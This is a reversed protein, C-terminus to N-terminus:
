YLSSSTESYYRNSGGTVGSQNNGVSNNTMDTNANSGSDAATNAMATQSNTTVSNALIGNDFGGLGNGFMSSLLNSNAQNAALSNAALSNLGIQNFLNNQQSSASPAFGTMIVGESAPIPSITSYPSNYYQPGYSQSYAKNYRTYGTSQSGGQPLNQSVTNTDLNLEEMQNSATPQALVYSPYPYQYYGGSPIQSITGVPIQPITSTIPVQDIPVQTTTTPIITTTVTEPIFGKSQLFACSSLALLTLGFSLFVKM